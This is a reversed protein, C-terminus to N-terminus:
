SRLLGAIKGDTEEYARATTDLTNAIEGILEQAKVFGPRLEAFRSSFAASAEGEFNSELQKLLTDMKKIVGDVTEAEQRYSTATSRMEDPTIRIQNAM